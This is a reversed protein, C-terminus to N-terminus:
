RLPPLASYLGCLTMFISSTLESNYYMILIYPLSPTISINIYLNSSLNKYLILGELTIPVKVFDPVFIHSVFVTRDVRVSLIHHSLGVLM